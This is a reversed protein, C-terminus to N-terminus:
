TEEGQDFQIMDEVAQRVWAYFDDLVARQEWGPETFDHIIVVRGPQSQDWCAVDDRDERRAFPVLMREPYRERLGGFRQRLLDGQLVFWPEFYLLGREVLRLFPGPYQFGKPLEAESLLEKSDEIM